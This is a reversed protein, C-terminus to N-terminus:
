LQFWLFCTADQFPQKGKNYPPVAIAVKDKLDPDELMPRLAVNNILTM